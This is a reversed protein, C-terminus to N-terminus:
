QNEMQALDLLDFMLTEMMKAAFIQTNLDLYINSLRGLSASIIEKQNRSAENLPKAQDFFEMNSEGSESKEFNIMNM